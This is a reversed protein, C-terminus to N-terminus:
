TEDGALGIIINIPATQETAVSGTVSIEYM